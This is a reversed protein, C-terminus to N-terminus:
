IFGTLFLEELVFFGTVFAFTTTETEKFINMYNAESSVGKVPM